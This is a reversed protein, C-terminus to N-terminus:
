NKQMKSALCFDTCLAYHVICMVTIDGVEADKTKANHM